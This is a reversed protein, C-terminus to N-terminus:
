RQIIDFSVLEVETLCAPISIALNYNLDMEIKDEIIHTNQDVRCMLKASNLDHNVVLILCIYDGEILRFDYNVYGPGETSYVNGDSCISYFRECNRDNDAFDMNICHNKSSDIGFYMEDDGFERWTNLTILKFKWIYRKISTDKTNIVNNGYVSNFGNKDRARKLIKQNGDLTISDGHDTFKEDIWYYLM